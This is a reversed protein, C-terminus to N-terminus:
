VLREVSGNAADIQVSHTIMGTRNLVSCDLEIAEPQDLQQPSFYRASAMHIASFKRGMQLRTLATPGDKKIHDVILVKGVSFELRRRHAISIFDGKKILTKVMLKKIWENLAPIRMFTLNAMRLLLYNFPTPSADAVFSLRSHIQVGNEGVVIEAEPDSNQSTILNGRQTIGLLGGDDFLLRKRTKDFVKLVGGNSAGLVAYYKETGRIHIGAEEFDQDVHIAQYPLPDFIFLAAPAEVALIINSLLPAMNGIDVDLVTTTSGSIIARTMAETLAAAAPFEDALLAIGGPYYVETRRSGYEGGFSGDPHVFYTLFDLSRGLAERLKPGPLLRYIQALYYMCLTQYGADAGGYEPFWGEQSQSNLINEVVERSKELYANREFLHHAKLLGLAAGAIHNTILGHKESNRCLFDAAREFSALIHSDEQPRLSACVADYARILDPLLFATAGYSRENPYAQDFSGDRHQIRAAYLLAQRIWKRLTEKNTVEDQELYWCLPAANRQFTAEPFDTLKWAWFRRDFCGNTTTAPDRNLQSILHRCATLAQDRLSIANM